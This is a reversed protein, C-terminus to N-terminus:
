IKRMAVRVHYYKLAEVIQDASCKKNFVCKGIEPLLSFMIENKENKKDHHMLEIIRHYTIENIHVPKFVSLIYDCIDNLEDEKLGTKIKSLYAESIMGIAIAEGHLLPHEAEELFYTEIAHGVTHGFNLNKRIDKELPDQLVINNKIQVSQSIINEWSDNNAFTMKKVVKWYSKDAILAHKIVEAYGSIIQRMSLTKLFGPYIFVAKPDCFLGIQNKLNDLDIGTKGGVSADVQSLLTTPINIFDFGRKFTSAIFGGMDGIVGGGLNILLSKRDANLETLVKWVQTCIEITKNEEGSEIEIIEANKLAEVKIILETLCFEITNEDALIFIKSRSYKQKLLSALASFSKEGIHILYNNAQIKHMKLLHPPKIQLSVFKRM